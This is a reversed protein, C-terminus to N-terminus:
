LKSANKKHMEFFVPAFVTGSMGAPRKVSIARAPQNTPTKKERMDKKAAVAAYIVHLWCM